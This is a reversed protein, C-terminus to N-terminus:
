FGIAGPTKSLNMKKRGTLLNYEVNKAGAGNVVCPWRDSGYITMLYTGANYFLKEGLFWNSRKGQKFYVGETATLKQLEKQKTQNEVFDTVMHTVSAEDKKGLQGNALVPIYSMYVSKAKGDAIIRDKDTFWKLTDFNRVLAYSPGDYYSSKKGSKKEKKAPMNANNMLIEGPGTAILLKEISDYDIQECMLGVHSIIIGNAIRRSELKVNDDTVTLHRVDMQESNDATEILDVILKGGYFRNTQGYGDKKTQSTGVVNGSFIVRNQAAFYKADKDATILVPVPEADPENPENPQMYFKFNVPGAAVANGTSIDYDIRTAKLRAPKKNDKASTDSELVPNDRSQLTKAYVNGATNKAFLIKARQSTLRGDDSCFQVNGSLDAVTLDSQRDFLFTASDAIARSDSSRSMTATMGGALDASKLILRDPQDIRSEAFFLNMVRGFTMEGVDDKTEGGFLLVGPGKIVARNASRRWTITGTTRLTSDSEAIRLRNYKEKESTFMDLVDADVNYRMTACMALADTQDTQRVRVPRGTVEIV